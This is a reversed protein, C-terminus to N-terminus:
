INFAESNEPQNKAHATIKEKKALRINDTNTLMATTAANARYHLDFRDRPTSGNNEECSVANSELRKYFTYNGHNNDFVM